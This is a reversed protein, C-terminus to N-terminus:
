QGTTANTDAGVIVYSAQKALAGSEELVNISADCEKDALDAHPLHSAFLCVDPKHM